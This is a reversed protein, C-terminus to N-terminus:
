KGGDKDGRGGLLESLGRVAKKQSLAQGVFRLSNPLNAVNYGIASTRTNWGHNGGKVLTFTHKVKRSTLLEHMQKNTKDLGYRDSDGCDFYIRLTKFKEVALDKALLLPNEAKWRKQDVPDGFISATLRAQHAWPFMAKIDKSRAPLIAASHTALIGFLSPHKFAIKMAGFGGMSVGMLVRQDRAALTRFTKDVHPVLEKVIMSEVRQEGNDVYFSRRQGNPCVFIVDPLTKKGLADDLVKSGGRFGFRNDDEFMGHLFYIVPYRTKASAKDDYGKPLYVSFEAHDVHESKLKQDPKYVLNKLAVQKRWDGRRDGGRRRQASADDVSSALVAGFLTLFLFSRHTLLARM